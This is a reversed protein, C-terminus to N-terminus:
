QSGYSRREEDIEAAMDRKHDFDLNACEFFNAIGNMVDHLVVLNIAGFELPILADTKRDRAYRFAVSAPDVQAFENICYSVVVAAEDSPDNHYATAIQLFLKWLDSLQHDKKTLSVGAWRGHQEIIEKLTIEVYHRYCFLIPYVLNDHDYPEGVLNQVLVDGALKYGKGLRYAREGISNAIRADYGRSFISDGKTPWRENIRGFVRYDRETAM